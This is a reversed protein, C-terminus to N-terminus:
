TNFHEFLTWSESDRASKRLRVTNAKISLQLTKILWEFEGTNFGLTSLHWLIKERPDREIEDTVSGCELDRGDSGAILDGFTGRGDGHAGVQQDLSISAKLLSSRVTGKSSIYALEIQGARGERNLWDEIQREQEFDAIDEETAGFKGFGSRNAKPNRIYRNENESSSTRSHRSKTM